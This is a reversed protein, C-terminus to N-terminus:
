AIEITFGAIVSPQNGETVAHRGYGDAAIEALRPGDALPLVELGTNGERV